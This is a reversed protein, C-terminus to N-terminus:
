DNFQAMFNDLPLITMSSAADTERPAMVYLNNAREKMMGRTEISDPIHCVALAKPALAFGNRMGRVDSVTRFRSYYPLVFKEVAVLSTFIADCNNIDFKPFGDLQLPPDATLKLDVQRKMFAPAADETELRLVIDRGSRTDDNAVDYPEPSGDPNRVLYATTGRRSDAREALARLQNATITPHDDSNNSGGNPAAPNSMTTESFLNAADVSDVFSAEAYHPALRGGVVKLDIPQIDWRLQASSGITADLCLM